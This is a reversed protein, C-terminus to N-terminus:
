CPGWIQDLRGRAAAPQRRGTDGRPQGIFVLSFGIFVLSFGIFVLSFGIFVLSFGLCVLIAYGSNCLRSQMALIAYGLTSQMAWIAYGPNCLRSQMALIAYGRTSQM